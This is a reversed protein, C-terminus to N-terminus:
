IQGLVGAAVKCLWIKYAIIGCYPQNQLIPDCFVEGMSRSLRSCATRSSFILM